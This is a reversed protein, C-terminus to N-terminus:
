GSPASGAARSSCSRPVEAAHTGKTSFSDRTSLIVSVNSRHDAHGSRPMAQAADQLARDITGIAM